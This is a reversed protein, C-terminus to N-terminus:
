KTKRNARRCKAIYKASETACPNSTFNSSISPKDDTTNQVPIVIEDDTDDLVDDEYFGLETEYDPREEYLTPARKAQLKQKVIIEKKPKKYIVDSKKYTIITSNTKIKRNSTKYKRTRKKTSSKKNKQKKIIKKSKKKSSDMLVIKKNSSKKSSVVADKKFPNSRKSTTSNNKLKVYPVYKPKQNSLTIKKQNKQENIKVNSIINKLQTEKKRIIDPTDENTDYESYSPYIEDLYENFNIAKKFLEQAKTLDKKVGEGKEYMKGLEVLSSISGSKIMKTHYKVMNSLHVKRKEATYFYSVVAIMMLTIFIVLVKKHNHYKSKNM